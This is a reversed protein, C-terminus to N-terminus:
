IKVLGLSVKIAENIEELTEADVRGIKSVLRQKDISRIQSLLVKSDNDIGTKKASLLVDTPYIKDLHESTIPTVITLPSYKNGIDNQIILAPRTKKIEYGVTPDFNVLWIDGRKVETM